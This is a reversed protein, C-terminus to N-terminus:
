GSPPEYKGQIARGIDNLRRMMFRWWARGLPIVAFRGILAIGTFVVVSWWAARVAAETAAVSDRRRFSRVDPELRSVAAFYLREAETQLDYRDSPPVALDDRIVRAVSSVEKLDEETPKAVSVWVSGDWATFAGTKPNEAYAMFRPLERPPLKARTRDLSAAFASLEAASSYRSLLAGALDHPAFSRYRAPLADGYWSYLEHIRRAIVHADKEFRRNIVPTAVYADRAAVGAVCLTVIVAIAGYAKM